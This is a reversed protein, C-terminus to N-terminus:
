EEKYPAFWEINDIKLIKYVYKTWQVMAKQNTGRDVEAFYEQQFKKLDTQFKEHIERFRTPQDLVPLLLNELERRKIEMLDFYTNIFCHTKNDMPLQYFSEYPDFITATLLNASDLYANIDLFIKIDLQYQESPMATEAVRPSNDAVLEKMIIRKKSWRTYPHQFLGGRMKPNASFATQNNISQPHNYFRQNNKQSDNLRYEDHYQWFFNNYPMANIKRYDNAQADVFDFDPLTFSQDFAYAYLVADTQITYAKENLYGAGESRDILTM